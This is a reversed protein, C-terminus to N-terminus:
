RKLLQVVSILFLLGFLIRKVINLTFYLDNRHWYFCIPFLLLAVLVCASESGYSLNRLFVLIGLYALSLILFGSVSGVAYAQAWPSNAISGVIPISPFLESHFYDHFRVPLSIVKNWYPVAVLFSGLIHSFPARFGSEVVRDMIAVQNFPEARVIWYLYTEESSIRELVLQWDGNRLPIIISKFILLISSLLTGFILFFTNPINRKIDTNLLRIVILAYIGFVFHIRMSYLYVDFSLLLLLTFVRTRQKSNLVISIISLYVWLNYFITMSDMLSRKDIGSSTDITFFNVLFLIIAVIFSPRKLSDLNVKFTPVYRRKPFADILYPLVLIVTFLFYTNRSITDVLGPSEFRPYVGLVGPYLYILNGCMVFFSIDFKQKWILVYVFTFFYLFLFLNNM